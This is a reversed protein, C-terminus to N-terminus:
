AYALIRSCRRINLDFHFGRTRQTIDGTSEARLAGLISLRHVNVSTRTSSKLASILHLPASVQGFVVSLMLSIPERDSAARSVHKGVSLPVSARLTLDIVYGLVTDLHTQPFKSLIDVPQSASYHLFPPIWALGFTPRNTEHEKHDSAPTCYCTAM